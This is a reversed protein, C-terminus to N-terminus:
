KGYGSPGFLVCIEEKEIGCSIGHLIETYNTGDGFSKKIENMELYM